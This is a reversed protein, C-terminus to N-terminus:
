KAYDATEQSMVINITDENTKESDGFARTLIKEACSLRIEPKINEDLMLEVILSAASPCAKKYIKQVKDSLKNSTM